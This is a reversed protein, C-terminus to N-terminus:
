RDKAGAILNIIMERRSEIFPEIAKLSFTYFVISMTMILAPIWWFSFITEPSIRESLVIAIVYPTVSGGLMVVNAGFSLRNNWMSTFNAQKISLISTWLGLSNFLFLSGIVVGLVVLLMQLNLTSRSLVVWVAFAVAMALGRLMLSAFSGARLATALTSPVVAYRRIGAGEFGFLNLMMAAGTASSTIFFLALTIILEGNQSRGPLMYKGLVVLLPSTILSFRILNCRLNYRLAKSVFPAYKSGFIGACRDYFDNWTIGGVLSDESIPPISELKRLVLVLVVCWSALLFFNGAITRASEGLMMTATAGPPTFTLLYDLGGGFSRWRGKM